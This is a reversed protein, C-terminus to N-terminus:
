AVPSFTEFYNIGYQQSYGKAVLRAKFREIQGNKDTKVTYGWKSGIAKQGPPLDVLTWTDNELLSTYEKQMAAKWENSHKTRLAKEYNEPIEIDSRADM